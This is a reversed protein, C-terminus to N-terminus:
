PLYRAQPAIYGAAATRQAAGDLRDHIVWGLRELQARADPSVTASLRLERSAVGDPLAARIDREYGAVEPTWYVADFAGFVVVSGDDLEAAPLRLGAIMRAVPRQAHFHLLLATSHLFVETEDESTVESAHRLLEARDKVGELSKAADVLISQRTPNLLLTNEFREIEAQSLGYSALAERRRKRLVAPDENYIADLAHTVEGAFPIGIPAFRMGLSAAADVKALRKVSRRLVENNTYPDVGLKAYWRREAASLGLYRDAYRRAMAPAQSAAKGALSGPSGSGGQHVEATVEQAQAQAGGLLHKVGKPIGLVTGVPNKAVRLMSKAQDAVGRVASQLVVNTESTKSLTTLAAVERLRVTLADRGYADFTGFRTEVVYHHMLGDSQVPDQIHFNEGAVQAPALSAAPPEDAPTEFDGPAASAQGAIAAALLAAHLALIAPLRM